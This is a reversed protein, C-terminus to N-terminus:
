KGINPVCRKLVSDWYYGPSCTPDGQAAVEDSDRLEQIKGILWELAEVGLQKVLQLVVGKLIGDWLGNAKNQQETNM